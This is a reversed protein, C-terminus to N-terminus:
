RHVLSVARIESLPCQWSDPGDQDILCWGREFRLGPSQVIRVGTPGSDTEAGELAVAQKTAIAYLILGNTIARTLDADYGDTINTTDILADADEAPFGRLGCLKIAADRISDCYPEPLRHCLHLLSIVTTATETEDLSMGIWQNEQNLRYGGAEADFYVPINAESLRSIYRYVSRESIGLEAIIQERPVRRQSSLLAILRTIKRLTSM